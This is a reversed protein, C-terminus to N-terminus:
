GISGIQWPSYENRGVCNLEAKAKEGSAIRLLREFIRRGTEEISAEEKLIGGCSMDIDSLMSEYVEDSAAMKVVPSPYAGFCSGTGTTYAIMTAGGAIQGTVAVADYGPTDMFVLGKQRVPQAYQYVEMLPTTGSKKLGVGKYAQEELFSHDINWFEGRFEEGSALLEKLQVARVWWNLRNVLKQRVEENVARKLLEEQVGYLEMTESLIVTAGAGVLLDAAVGLAPNASIGSLKNTGGCKLGVILKDASVTTRSIANAKQLMGYVIDIGKEVSKRSGGERCVVLKKLFPGESLQEAEFFGEVSYKNDHLSVVLMGGINPNNIYGLMTRRMVELIQGKIDLAGGLTTIFPIVGDINRFGALRDATFYDAIQRAVTASENETAIVGIYNRTGVRNDSRVIGQFTAKNNQFEEM